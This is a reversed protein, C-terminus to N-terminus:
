LKPLPCHFFPLAWRKQEITLVSKTRKLYHCILPNIQGLFKTMEEVYSRLFLSRLIWYILSMETTVNQDFLFQFLSYIFIFYIM